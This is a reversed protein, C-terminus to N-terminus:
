LGLEARVKAIHAFGITDNEAPRGVGSMTVRGYGLDHIARVTSAHFPKAGAAVCRIYLEWDDYITGKTHGGTKDFLTKKIPAAGPCTMRNPIEEPLWRGEMIAGNHKLELKDIYIDCGEAHAQELEDFAGPLYQDDVNCISVWDTTQNAQIALMFEAFEGQMEITTTIPKHSDPILGEVYDKNQPDHAIIIADPQRKLSQVGEWWRPMFENYSTGFLSVGVGLTL